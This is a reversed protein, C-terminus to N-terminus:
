ICVNKVTSNINCPEIYVLIRYININTKSNQQAYIRVYAQETVLDSKPTDFRPNKLEYEIACPEIYITSGSMWKLQNNCRRITVSATLSKIFEANTVLWFNESFYYKMGVSVPHNIDKFLVRKWDDGLKLGVEASVASTIRVQMDVYSGSAFVSEEQINFIDSANDFQYNLMAQFDNVWAAAPDGKETL